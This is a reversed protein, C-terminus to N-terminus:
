PATRESTDGPGGLGPARALLGVLVRELALRGDFGSKMAFDADAVAALGLLLESRRFRLSAQYKMWFGYPKRGEREEEPVTPFVSSEWERASGIREEGAVRRAREREAIM